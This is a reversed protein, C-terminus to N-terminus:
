RARVARAIALADRVRKELAVYDGAAVLDAALLNSGIGCAAIGADFWAKLSVETPEVGGTPMLRSWPMPGLVSKVFAPGGAAGGPFIKILECGAEEAASIESATACGPSYAIKRRNCLRAVELNLCPGVVFQAGNAIFLAATPADVISGVGMIAPGGALRRAAELFTAAAFAGRNTFEVCPAGARVCAEVVGVVQDPTQAYFVPVIGQDVIAALVAM